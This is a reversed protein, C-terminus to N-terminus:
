KKVVRTWINKLFPEMKKGPMALFFEETFQDKNDIRLLLKAQMGPLGNEIQETLFVMENASSLSDSLLYRNVYGESNFERLVTKKRGNDFSFFAWDEHTEGQPNKEQPEFRSVNQLLLYRGNMIWRYSRAGKGEGAKGSEVGRWTGAFYELPMKWIEQSPAQASVPSVLFLLVAASLFSIKM